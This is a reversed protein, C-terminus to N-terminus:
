IEEEPWEEGEKHNFQGCPPDNMHARRALRGVGPHRLLQALGCREPLVRAVEDAVVVAFEPRGEGADSRSAADRDQARRDAGRLRIGDALAEQAAHPTFAQIVQEDETLPM